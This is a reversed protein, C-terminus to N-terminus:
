IINGRRQEDQTRHKIHICLKRLLEKIHNRYPKFTLYYIPFNIFSNAIGLWLFAFNLIDPTKVKTLVLVIQQTYFPTWCLMVAIIAIMYMQLGHRTYVPTTSGISSRRAQNNMETIHYQRIRWIRIYFYILMMAAIPFQIFAKIIVLAIEQPYDIVTFYLTPNYRYKGIGFLSLSNTTMPILWALAIAVYRHCPSMIQPYRLPFGICIYRDMSLLVLLAVSVNCLVTMMYGVAMSVTANVPWVGSVSLPLSFSTCLIGLCLDAITLNILILRAGPQITKIQSLVIINVINALIILVSITVVPIAFYPSFNCDPLGYDGCEIKTLVTLNNQDSTNTDKNWQITSPSSETSMIVCKRFVVSDTYIRIRDSIDCM